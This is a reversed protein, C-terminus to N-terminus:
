PWTPGGAGGIARGSSDDMGEFAGGMRRVAAGTDRMGGTLLDLAEGTSSTLEQYLAALRAGAEDTGWSTTGGTATQSHLVSLDGASGTGADELAGGHTRLQAPNVHFNM